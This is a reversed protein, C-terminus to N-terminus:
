GVIVYLFTKDADATNSHTLVFSGQNRTTV